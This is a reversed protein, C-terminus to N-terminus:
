NERKKERGGVGVGEEDVRVNEVRERANGGMQRREEELLYLKPINKGCHQFPQAEFLFIKGGISCIEKM